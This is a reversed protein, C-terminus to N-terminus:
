DFSSSSSDTSTSDTTDWSSDHSPSDSWDTSHSEYVPSSEVATSQRDEDNLMDGVMAGVPDGGIATGLVASDTAYAVAMSETFSPHNESVNASPPIRTPSQLSKELIRTPSQAPRPKLVPVTGQVSKFQVTPMADIPEDLRDRSDLAEQANRKKLIILLIASALIAAAIAFYLM